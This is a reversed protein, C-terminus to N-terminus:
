KRLEGLRQVRIDAGMHKWLHSSEGIAVGLLGPARLVEFGM